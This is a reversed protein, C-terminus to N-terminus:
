STLVRLMCLTRVIEVFIWQCVVLIHWEVKYSSPVFMFQCVVSIPWEEKYSSPVRILSSM